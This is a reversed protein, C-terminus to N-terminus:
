QSAGRRVLKDLQDYSVQMGHEMGSALMADRETVSMFSFTGLLRTRTEGIAILEMKQLSVHGSNDPTEFEFTQIIRGPSVEHFSGHFRFVTGAQNTQVFRWSGSNRADLYEVRMTYGPGVWWQELKEAQTLAAFVTDRAADFTREIQATSMGAEATVHTKNM